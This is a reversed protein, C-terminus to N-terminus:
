KMVRKITKGSEGKWIQVGRSPSEIKRGVGDYREKATDFVERWTNEVGDANLIERVEAFYPMGNASFGKKTQFYSVYGPAVLLTCHEALKGSEDYFADEALQGDDIATAFCYVNRLNEAGDAVRHGIRAVGKGISLHFLSPTYAFAGDGIEKVNDGLSIAITEEKGAMAYDGIAVVHDPIESIEACCPVFCLTEKKNDFLWGREDSRYHPNGTAVSLRTLAKNLLFAGGQIHSVTTPIDIAALSSHGGFAGFAITQLGENLEVEALAACDYFALSDIREMSASLHVAKLRSANCFALPAICRVGDPVRYEEFDSSPPFAILSDADSNFLVGQISCFFPNGSGVNIDTLSPTSYFLLPHFEKFANGLYITQLMSDGMLAAQDLYAVGDGVSLEKLATMRQFAGEGVHVVSNPLYLTQISACDVFAGYQIYAVTSPIEVYKLQTCGALALTDISIISEPLHLQELGACNYLFGTAFHDNHTVRDSGLMNIYTEDSAVIVTESIDLIRLQGPTPTSLDTVGCMDRLFMMDKGNLPGSVKMSSTAYKEEGAILTVIEELTGPREVSVYLDYQAWALQAPLVALLVLWFCNWRNM